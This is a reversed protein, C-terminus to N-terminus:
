RSTKQFMWLISAFLRSLTLSVKSDCFFQYCRFYYQSQQFYYIWGRVQNIFTHQIFHNMLTMAVLSFLRESLIFCFRFLGFFTCALMSIRSTILYGFM